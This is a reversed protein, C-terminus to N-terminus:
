GPSVESREKSVVRPSRNGLAALVRPAAGGGSGSHAALVPQNHPKVPIQSPSKMYSRSILNTTSASLNLKNAIPSEPADNTNTESNLLQELDPLRRPDVVPHSWDARYKLSVSSLARLAVNHNDKGAGETGFKSSNLVLRCGKASVQYVDLAFAAIFTQSALDRLIPAIKAPSTPTVPGLSGQKRVPSPTNPAAQHTGEFRFNNNFGANLVAPGPMLDTVSPACDRLNNNILSGLRQNDDFNM